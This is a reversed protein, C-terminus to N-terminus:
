ACAWLYSVQHLALESDEITAVGGRSM